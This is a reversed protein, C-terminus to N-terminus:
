VNFYSLARSEELAKRMQIVLVTVEEKSWGLIEGVPFIAFVDISHDIFVGNYLGIQKLKKDQPWSRRVVRGTERVCEFFLKFWKKVMHGQYKKIKPNESHTEIDNELSEAWGGPRVRTFAQRYLKEYDDIAGYLYRIHIFDFEDPNFAWDLQADDIQFCYEITQSQRFPRCNMLRYELISSTISATWDRLSDTTCDSNDYNYPM